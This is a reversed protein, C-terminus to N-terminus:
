ASVARGRTPSACQRADDHQDLCPSSMVKRLFAREVPPLLSENVIGADSAFCDVDLVLRTIRVPMFIRKEWDMYGFHWEDKVVERWCPYTAESALIHSPLPEGNELSFITLHLSNM